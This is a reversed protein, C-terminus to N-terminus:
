ISPDFESISVGFAEALKEVTKRTPSIEGREIRSIHAQQLGTLVSLREQTMKAKRRLSKVRSAVFASWNSVTPKRSLNEPSVSVPAQKLIETFTEKVALINERSPDEKLSLVAELLDNRDQDCLQHIRTLVVGLATVAFEDLGNLDESSGEKHEIIGNNM